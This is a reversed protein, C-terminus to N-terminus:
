LRQRYEAISQETFPKRNRDNLEGDLFEALQKASSLMKDFAALSDISTPLVMLLVIGKFSELDMNEPTFTGPEMLSAVSFLPPQSSNGDLYQHFIKQKGYEFHCARLANLLKEGCFGQNNKALINMVVVEQNEPKEPPSTKAPESFANEQTSEVEDSCEDQIKESSEECTDIPLNTLLPDNEGYFITAERQEPAFLSENELIPDRIEVSALSPNKFRRFRTSHFLIYGGLVVGIILLLLRLDTQM